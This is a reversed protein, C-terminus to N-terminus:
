SLGLEDADTFEPQYGTSTQFYGPGADKSKSMLASILRQWLENSKM